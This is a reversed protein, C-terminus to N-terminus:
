GAVAAVLRAILLDPERLDEATVFVVRWGAATLRNLRARDRAVQQREGHWRGEYEVALRREPWAFDVRAVFRGDPDLVTYQAVPSLRAAHLLLRLRTEQPSGALGDALHAVLRARRCGPGTAGAAASRVSDLDTAGHVVLADVVAVSEALPGPSRGLDVATTEATTVPVDRRITVQDASLPWRRLRVGRATSASSGPPLTLEVVDDPGAADVGWLVAASRGSVVAGPVALLAAAGARVEHTVAVTSCAYVDRFLRQWATSRLQGKTLRGAAIQASGRFV